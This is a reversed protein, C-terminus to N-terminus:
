LSKHLSKQHAKWEAIRRKGAELYIVYSLFECHKYRTPTGGNDAIVDPRCHMDDPQYVYTLWRDSKWDKLEIPYLMGFIDFHVPTVMSQTLITCNLGNHYDAPGVVGFGHKADLTATFYSLWGPSKLTLDDNVQYFYEAGERLAHLYLLNWLLAIRRANPLQLLKVQVPKQGILLTLKKIVDARVTEDEYLPDGHDYGIYVTFLTSQYEEETVTNLFSPMLYKLFVPEGGVEMGKSTTPLALAVKRITKKSSEALLQNFQNTPPTSAVEDILISNMIGEERIDVLCGAQSSPDSPFVGFSAADPITQNMPPSKLTNCTGLRLSCQLQNTIMELGRALSYAEIVKEGSTYLTKFLEQEQESITKRPTIPLKNSFTVREGQIATFVGDTNMQQAIEMIKERGLRYADVLDVVSGKNEARYILIREPEVVYGFKIWIAHGREKVLASLLALRIQHEDAQFQVAKNIPLGLINHINRLQVNNWWSIEEAISEPIEAPM